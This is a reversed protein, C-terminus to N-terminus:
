DESGIFARAEFALQVAGIVEGGFVEAESELAVENKPRRSEM